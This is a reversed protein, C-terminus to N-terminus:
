GRKRMGDLLVAVVTDALEGATTEGRAILEEYEHDRIVSFLMQVAARTPLGPCVSGEAKAAEVTACMAAVLSAVEVQYERNARIVPVLAARAAPGFSVKGSQFKEEIVRRMIRRLKEVAPLADDLEGIYGRARRILDVVARIAIAEKSPFHQYLTPKSIGARAALDDMTMADYGHVAMLERAAEVIADERVRRQRQRKGEAVPPQGDAATGQM